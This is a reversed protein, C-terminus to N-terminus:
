PNPSASTGSRLMPIGANGNFNPDTAREADDARQMKGSLIHDVGDIENQDNAFVAKVRFLFRHVRADQYNHSLFWRQNNQPLFIYEDFQNKNILHLQYYGLSKNIFDLYSEPSLGEFSQFLIVKAEKTPAVTNLAYMNESMAKWVDEAEGTLVKFEPLSKLDAITDAEEIMPFYPQKKAASVTANVLQRAEEITMGHIRSLSIAIFVFLLKTAMQM